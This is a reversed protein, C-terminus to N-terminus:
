CDSIGHLIVMLVFIYRINSKTQPSFTERNCTKEKMGQFINATVFYEVLLPWIQAYCFVAFVKEGRVFLLIRYM